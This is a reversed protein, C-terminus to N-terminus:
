ILFKLRNLYYLFNTVSVTLTFFHVITIYKGFLKGYLESIFAIAMPLAMVNYTAYQRLDGRLLALLARTMYCTPCPLGTLAYFICSIDFLRLVVLIFIFCILFITESLFRKESSHWLM